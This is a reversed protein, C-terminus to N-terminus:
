ISKFQSINISPLVGVSKISNITAEGKKSEFFMKLYYPNIKDKDVRIVLLNGNPILQENKIEAVAFKSLTGKASILVDGNKILYKDMKNDEPYFETLNKDIIGDNINTINVIKIPNKGNPKSHQELENAMIQRGRYIDIAVENLKKSNNIIIKEVDMYNTVYLSYNNNEIDKISVIKTYKSNKTSIYEEFIKEVDLSKLYKSPTEKVFSEANIFKVTEKKVKSLVLINTSIATNNLLNAPLAIVSEVYGREVLYRRIEQDPLKFLPGSLMVVLAKGTTNLSEVSKKVFAWDASNMKNLIMSDNIGNNLVEITKPDIRSIFPQHCFVKDYKKYLNLNFVNETILNSDANLVNLRMKAIKNNKSNIEIGNYINSNNFRAYNVLFNGQYSGIDLVNKGKVLDLINYALENISNPTSNSYRSISDFDECIVDAIEECSFSDLFDFIHILNTYSSASRMSEFLNLIIEDCEDDIYNKIFEEINDTYNKFSDKGVFKSKWFLYTLSTITEQLDNLNLYSPIYSRFVKIIENKRKELM